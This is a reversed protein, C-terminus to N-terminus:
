TEGLASYVFTVPRNVRELAQIAARVVRPRGFFKLRQYILLRGLQLPVHRMARSAASERTWVDQHESVVPPSVHRIFLLPFAESGRNRRYRVRENDLQSCPPRQRRYPAEAFVVRVLPQNSYVMPFRLRARQMTNSEFATGGCCELLDVALQSSCAYVDM